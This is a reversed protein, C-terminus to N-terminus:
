RDIGHRLRFPVVVALRAVQSELVGIMMGRWPADHRGIDFFDRPQLQHPIQERAEVVVAFGLGHRFRIAIDYEEPRWLLERPKRM